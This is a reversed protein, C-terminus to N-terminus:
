RATERRRRALQDIRQALIAEVVVQQDGVARGAVHPRAGDREILLALTRSCSANSRARRVSSKAVPAKRGSGAVPSGPRLRACGTTSSTPMSVDTTHALMSRSQTDPNMSREPRGASCRASRGRRGPCRGTDSPRDPSTRRCARPLTPSPARCTRPLTRPRAPRSPTSRRYTASGSSNRPCCVPVRTM